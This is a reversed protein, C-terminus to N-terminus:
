KCDHAVYPPFYGNGSALSLSALLALNRAADRLAFFGGSGGGGVVVVVDRSMEGVEYSWLEPDVANLFLAIVNDGGGFNLPASANHLFVIFGTYGEEHHMVFVGNLFVDVSRFVGDFELFVLSGVAAAPLSFHKRYWSSNKPLAGKNPDLRSDFAAEVGYDHPVSLARWPSDDYAVACPDGSGCAVPAPSPANRQGGSWSAGPLSDSCGDGSWCGADSQWGWVTCDPSACCANQCAAASHASPLSSLGLCQVGNLPVFGSANCQQDPARPDGLLFRWGADFSSRARPPASAAALSSSVALLLLLPTLM